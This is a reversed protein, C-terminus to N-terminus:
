LRNLLTIAEQKNLLQLLYRVFFNNWQFSQLTICMYMYIYFCLVLLEILLGTLHRPSMNGELQFLKRDNVGQLTAISVETGNPWSYEATNFVRWSALESVCTRLYFQLYLRAKNVNM